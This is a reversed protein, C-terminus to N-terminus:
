CIKTTSFFDVVAYHNSGSKMDAQVKFVGNDEMSVDGSNKNIIIGRTSQYPGAKDAIEVSYNIKLGSFHGGLNPDPKQDIIRLGSVSTVREPILCVEYTGVPLYFSSYETDSLKSAILMKSVSSVNKFQEMMAKKTEQSNSKQSLWLLAINNEM